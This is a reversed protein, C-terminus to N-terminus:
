RTQQSLQAQMLAIIIKQASYSRASLISLGTYIDVVVPSARSKAPIFCKREREFPIRAYAGETARAGPLASQSQTMSGVVPLDYQIQEAITVDSM